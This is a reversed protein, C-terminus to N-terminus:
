SGLNMGIRMAIMLLPLELVEFTAFGALAISLASLPQPRRETLLDLLAALLVFGIASGLIQLFTIGAFAFVFVMYTADGPPVGASSTAGITSLGLYVTVGVAYVLAAVLVLWRDGPRAFPATSTSSDSINAM